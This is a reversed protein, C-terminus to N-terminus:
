PRHRKVNKVTEVGYKRELWLIFAPEVANAFALDGGLKRLESVNLENLSAKHVSASILRKRDRGLGLSGDNALVLGTVRRQAAATVFVTKSRNVVLHPYQVSRAASQVIGVMDKLFGIRQSSFTLDDAYRTYSIGKKSAQAAVLEDFKHMLINSLMPSSPAGISLRLLTEGRRRRFLLKRTIQQDELSLTGNLGCYLDWDEARINPFFESFDMKLIPDTGVHPLANATLGIGSRYATASEHVPLHVLIKEMLIRQLLKLERAPQAIERLGGRRKPIFFVKYRSPGTAVIRLVDARSLGSESVLVDILSSM